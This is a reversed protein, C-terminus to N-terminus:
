QLLIAAAAVSNVAMHLATSAAISGSRLRVWGFVWGYLFIMPVFPGDRLHLLTFLLSCSFLGAAEGWQAVLRPLMYGRFLYEEALPGLVAIGLVLLVGGKLGFHAQSLQDVMPDGPPTNPFLLYGAVALLFWCRLFGTLLYYFGQLGARLPPLPAPIPPVDRSLWKGAAATLGLMLGTQILLSVLFLGLSLGGTKARALVLFGVSSAMSGLLALLFGGWVPVSTSRRLRGWVALIGILALAPLQAVVMEDYVRFETTPENEFLGRQGPAKAAETAVRLELPTGARNLTLVRPAGPTEKQLEARLAKPATVPTGDIKEILDGPQVGARAAPFDPAVDRVRLSDDSEFSLGIMARKGDSTRALFEEQHAGMYIVAGMVLADVLVLAVLLRMWTLEARSSYGKLVDIIALTWGGIVAGFPIFILGLTLHFHYRPLNPPEKGGSAEDM